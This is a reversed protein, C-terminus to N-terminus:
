DLDPVCVSGNSPFTEEDFAYEFEKLAPPCGAVSRRTQYESLHPGVLGFPSYPMCSRAM